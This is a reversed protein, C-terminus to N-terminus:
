RAAARSMPFMAPSGAARIEGVVEFGFRQYLPVNAPNSSELYAPLGTADVDHLARALLASGVGKGQHAPDVGIMPLYWHPEEPHHAAMQEFFPAAAELRSPEMFALVAEKMADSDSHVGEPLWLSAGRFEAEVYASGHAFAPGAMARALRPFAELYAAPDPFVWRMIPDTAFALCELALTRELEAEELVRVPETM